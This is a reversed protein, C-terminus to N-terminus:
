KVDEIQIIKKRIQASLRDLLIISSVMMILITSLEHFKFLRISIILEMGIGGAGVLGLVTSSRFNHELYYLYYGLFLPKLEPIIGRIVVQFKNAGTALIARILEQNMTEIAESFYRGLAGTVHVTLSLVGPLPGLGVMSVFILAWVIEHIGRLIDFIARATHYIVKNSVINRAALLSLPFAFIAGLTGGLLAIQFTEIIKILVNGVNSFDPPLLLGIFEALRPLGKVFAILSFDTGKITWAFILFIIIGNFLKKSKKKNIKKLNM